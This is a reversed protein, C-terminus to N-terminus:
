YMASVTLCIQNSEGYLVYDAIDLTAGTEVFRGDLKKCLLDVTRDILHEMELVQSMSYSARIPRLAATHWKEDRSSFLTSVRTGAM